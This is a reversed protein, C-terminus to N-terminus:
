SLKTTWPKTGALRSFTSLAFVAPLRTLLAGRNPNIRMSASSRNRTGEPM